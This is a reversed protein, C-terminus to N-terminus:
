SSRLRGDSKAQYRLYLPAQTAKCDHREGFLQWAEPNITQQTVEVEGRVCPM